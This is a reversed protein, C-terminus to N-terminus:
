LNTANSNSERPSQKWLTLQDLHRDYIVQDAQTREIWWDVPKVTRHLNEGNLDNWGSERCSLTGFFTGSPRLVRGIEKLTADIDPTDLHELVDFCTVLAFSSDEFPLHMSSSTQVREKVNPFKKLRTRAKEVSADSVDVGFPNFQFPPRSLSEVVFGVGCGLDLSRGSLVTLKDTARLVARLGPSNEALSYKENNEVVHNYIAQYDPM